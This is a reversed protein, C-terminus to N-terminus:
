EDRSDTTMNPGLYVYRPFGERESGERNLMYYGPKATSDSELTNVPTSKNKIKKTSGFIFNVIFFSIFAWLICFLLFPFWTHKTSSTFSFEKWDGNKDFMLEPKIYLVLVVGVLYLLCSLLVVRM